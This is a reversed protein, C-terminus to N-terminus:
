HKTQNVFNIYFDLILKKTQKNNVIQSITRQIKRAYFWSFFWRKIFWANPENFDFYHMILDRGSFKDKFYDQLFTHWTRIHTENIDYTKEIPLIDDFYAQYKTIDFQSKLIEDEAFKLAQASFKFNPIKQYFNNKIVWAERQEDVFSHFLMGAKFSNKEQLIDQLSVNTFHTDTRAVVKLYRIDPFSTGLIFEKEDFLDKLPGALMLTALFIHTIPAAM